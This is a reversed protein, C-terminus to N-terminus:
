KIVVVQVNRNQQKAAPTSNPVVPKNEGFSKTVIDAANLGADSVMMAKVAEARAKALDMNMSADGDSDANGFIAIKKGMYRQKISKAIQEMQPKSSATLTSQGKVFLINSGLDYISYKGDDRVKVNADTIEELRNEPADFNVDGFDAETAAVVRSGDDMPQETKMTDNTAVPDVDNNRVAFFWYALAAIGALLLLWAIWSYNPKKEVHLETM